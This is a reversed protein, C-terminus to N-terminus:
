RALGNEAKLQGREIQRRRREAERTSGHKRTEIRHQELRQAAERKEAHARQWQRRSAEIKEVDVARPTTTIVAVDGGIRGSGLLGLASVLIFAGGSM